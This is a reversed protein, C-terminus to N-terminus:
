ADDTWVQAGEILNGGEYSFAVSYRARTIAVYLKNRSDDTESDDFATMDGSLFKAHRDPPLILVREFGMGKCEGFNYTIQGECLKKQTGRNWRLIVPHYTDIYQGLRAKPVAFIGQHGAYELPAAAVKSVTPLYHGDRAHLRDGMDCIVQISRWSIALSEPEFEMNKFQALKEASSQPQKSTESTQYVAQRFDGVCDIEGMNTEALARLIDFDWGVLDQVEDVFVASYIEALRRAASGGTHMHVRAALKALYYTHARNEGETVFHLPNFRGDIKEGRDKKAYHKGPLLHPNGTNLFVGSIRDPVICRQYPRIMDELLFSFWGKVVVYEPQCGNLRCIQKVLEAQNNITFTLLLVKRGAAAHELAREAIRRSKGAGASALLLRRAM